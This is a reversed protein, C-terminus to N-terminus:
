AGPAPTVFDSSFIVYEILWQNNSERFIWLFKGRDRRAAPPITSDAKM